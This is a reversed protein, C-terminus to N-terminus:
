KFGDKVRRRFRKLDEKIGNLRYVINNDIFERQSKHYMNISKHNMKLNNIDEYVRLVRHELGDIFALLEEKELNNNCRPPSNREGKSFTYKLAKSM